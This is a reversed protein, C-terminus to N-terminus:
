GGPSVPSARQSSPIANIRIASDRLCTMLIAIWRPFGPNITTQRQSETIAGLGIVNDARIQFATLMDLQSYIHSVYYGKQGLFYARLFNDQIRNAISIGWDCLEVMDEGSSEMPDWFDLLGLLSNLQIVPDTSKYYISRLEAIAEGTIKGTRLEIVRDFEKNDKIDPKYIRNKDMNTSDRVKDSPTEKILKVIEDLKDEINPLQLQPFGSIIHRNKYLENALFTAEKHTANIGLEKAKNRMVSVVENSLKRPTIFTWNDVLLKGSQKLTHAKKLDSHIKAKYDKDTKREPKM